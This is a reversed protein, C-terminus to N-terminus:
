STFPIFFDRAMYFDLNPSFESIDYNANLVFPHNDNDFIIRKEETWKIVQLLMKCQQIFVQHRNEDISKSPNFPRAAQIIPFGTDMGEDVLHITSGIFTSGAKITDGFGNIGPCSPLISPHLNILKNKALNLFDGKFLRTYFSVFLDPLDERFENYLFNSFALGDKAEYLKVPIGASIAVDIAGCPRDSVVYYISNKFYPVDLLKKMVSGSTSTIVIVKIVEDDIM